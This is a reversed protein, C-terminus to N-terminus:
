RARASSTSASPAQGHASSHPGAIPSSRQGVREGAAQVVGHRRLVRHQGFESSRRPTISPIPRLARGSRTTLPQPRDREADVTCLFGFPEDGANVWRHPAWPARSSSTSRGGDRRGRPRGARRGAAACAIVVHEHAHKELSSFGGPAIEFYRVEFAGRALTNRSIGAM